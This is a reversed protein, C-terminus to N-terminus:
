VRTATIVRSTLGTDRASYTYPDRVTGTGARSVRRLDLLRALSKSVRVRPTRLAEAIERQTSSPHDRLHHLVERDIADADPTLQDARVVLRFTRWGGAERIMRIAERRSVGFETMVADADMLPKSM